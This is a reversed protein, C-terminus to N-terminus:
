ATACSPACADESRLLRDISAVLVSSNFPKPLFADAGADLAMTMARRLPPEIDLLYSAGSIAVVPTLDGSERLRAIAEIGSMGPTCLDMVLLDASKAEHLRLGHGGTPAPRVVHGARTLTTALLGRVEDNDEVLVIQAM